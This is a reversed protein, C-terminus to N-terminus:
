TKFMNSLDDDALRPSWDSGSHIMVRHAGDGTFVVSSFGRRICAIVGTFAM